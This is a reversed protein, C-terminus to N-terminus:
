IDLLRSFEQSIELSVSDLASQDILKSEEDLLSKVKGKDLAYVSLDDFAIFDTQGMIKEAKSKSEKGQGASEAAQLLNNISSLIYPSHTSVFLTNNPNGDLQCALWKVLEYQAKPFLNQEPEELFVSIGYSRVYHDTVSEKDKVSQEAAIINKINENARMRSLSMTEYFLGDFLHSLLAYQPILSQLGSSANAFDLTKKGVVIKDKKQQVDYYYSVGLGLIDLKNASYSQRASEWEAMYDRVNNFKGFNIDMWNPISAVVNREAPIYSIKTSLYDWRKSKNWAFTTKIEGTEAITITFQLTKSKYTIEATGNVYGDLKHFTLLQDAVVQANLWEDPNQSLQIKKEIWKCFSAVKLITSKGSSQPGILVNVKKLKLSAAKIAGFNKIQLSDM